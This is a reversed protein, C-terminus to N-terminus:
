EHERALRRAGRRFGKAMNGKVRLELDSFYYPSCPLPSNWCEFGECPMYIELGSETVVTKMPVSKAVAVDKGWRDLSGLLNVNNSVLLVAYVVLVPAAGGKSLRQMFLAVAWAAMLWFAAGAFRPDPASLFWMVLSCVPVALFLWPGAAVRQNRRWSGILAFAFHVATLAVPMIVDFVHRRAINNAWPWLWRWNGLVEEPQMNRIRASSRVWRMENRVLDLPVRWDVSFGGFALPFAPYGSLVVGRVMWPLIIALTALGAGALVSVMRARGGFRRWCALVSVACATGSFVVSSLKVTVGVLCLLVVNLVTRGALGALQRGEGGDIDIATGSESAEMKETSACIFRMVEAGVTLQLLFVAADPTPASAYSGQAACGLLPVVCFADFLDAPQPTGARFVRAFAVCSRALGFMILLGTALQHSKGAFPGVDLMSVYLFFSNNFALRYHLNGLGPVLPYSSAWRVANLHYLGTDGLRPQDTSQNAVWLAVAIITLGLPLVHKGHRRLWVGLERGSWALGMVGLATMVGLARGDVPLFCHWIQLFAIGGGWGMWPALLVDATRVRRLGLARGLLLGVGCFISWLMGWWLVVLGIAALAEKM